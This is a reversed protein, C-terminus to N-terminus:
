AARVLEVEELDNERIIPLAFSEVVLRVIAEPREAVVAALLETIKIVGTEPIGHQKCLHMVGKITFGIFKQKDQEPYNDELVTIFDDIRTETVSCDRVLVRIRDLREHYVAFPQFEGEADAFFQQVGEQVVEEMKDKSTM